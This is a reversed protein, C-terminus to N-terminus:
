KRIQDLILQADTYNPRSRVAMSYAEQAKAKQGVLYLFNGYKWYLNATPYGKRIARHLAQLNPGLGEKFHYQAVWEGYLSELFPDGAMLPYGRELAHAAKQYIEPDNLICEAEFQREHFFRHAQLWKGLFAPEKPGLPVLGLVLGGDEEVQGSPLPLWQVQPLRKSLADELHRNVILAAWHAQPPDLKPNLAANFPYTEVTLSHNRSLLLFDSFILGPGEEVSKRQLALFAEQNVRQDPSSPGRRLGSDFNNARALHFADLGMSLVLFLSFVLPGWRLKTWERYFAVLGLVVIILAWPMAQVIRYLGPYDSTAMGPALCWVFLVLLVRERVDKGKFVGLIGRFFALGLIPNLFGGWAPANSANKVLAGFWLATWYSVVNSLKQQISFNPSTLAIEIWHAGFGERVAFYLFPGITIALSIFYLLASRFDKNKKYAWLFFLISAIAVGVWSAYTFFGLGTATGWGLAAWRKRKMGQATLCLVAMWLVVGEFFPVMQLYFEGAYVPWFGFAMLFGFWGAGQKPLLRRIVFTWVLFTAVSVLAASAALFLRVPIFKGLFATYIWISLPPHQGVTYFYRWEWHEALHIGLFGQLAEDGTPWPHGWWPVLIRYGVVGLFLLVTMPSPGSVSGERASRKSTIGKSLGYLTAFMFLGHSGLAYAGMKSLDCGYSLYCLDIFM